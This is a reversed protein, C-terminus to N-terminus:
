EIGALGLEFFFQLKDQGLQDCRKSVPPLNVRYIYRCGLSM